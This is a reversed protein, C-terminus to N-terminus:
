ESDVVSKKFHKFFGNNELSLILKTNEPQMSKKYAELSRYFEFFGKDQSYADSYIKTALADGEGRLIESKKRAEALIIKSEKDARSKIAQGLEGGEARIEKAEKERDSRMRQYIGQSNEKPLDARLIRVDMIIVGFKSAESNAQTRTKHMVEFRKETLLDSLPVKAVAERLSSEIFSKIKPQAGREDLYARYFAEPDIIKYKAFASVVPRKQDLGILQLPQTSIDIARKDFFIVNQIVPIKFSLGPDKVVRVIEGFQFVLAQSAQEVVFISNALVLVVAGILIYLLNKNM